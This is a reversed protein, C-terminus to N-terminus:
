PIQDCECHAETSPASADARVLTQGVLEPSSVKRFHGVRLEHCVAMRAGTFSPNTRPSIARTCTSESVPHHMHTNMHSDSRSILLHGGLLGHGNVLGVKREAIMQSTCPGAVRRSRRGCRQHTCRSRCSIRAHAPSVVPSELHGVRGLRAALFEHSEGRNASDTLTPPPPSRNTVISAYATM